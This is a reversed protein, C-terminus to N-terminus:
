FKKRLMTFDFFNTYYGLSYLIPRSLKYTGVEELAILAEDDGARLKNRIVEPGMVASLHTVITDISIGCVDWLLKFVPMSWDLDRWTTCFMSEILYDVSYIVPRSNALVRKECVILMEGEDVELKAALHEDAQKQYLMVNDIAPQAGTDQVLDNYELKIDLRNNLEVIQRNVKTGIGRGREVYGERELEALTDRIVSRSVKFLESLKVESPLNDVDAFMGNKLEAMLKVTLRTSYTVGGMNPILYDNKM